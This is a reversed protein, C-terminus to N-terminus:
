KDCLQYLLLLQDSSCPPFYIKSPHQHRNLRESHIIWSSSRLIPFASIKETGRKIAIALSNERGCTENIWRRTRVCPFTPPFERMKCGCIFAWVCTELPDHAARDHFKRKCDPVFRFILKRKEHTKWSCVHFM